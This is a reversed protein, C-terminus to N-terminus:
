FVRDWGVAVHKPAEQPFLLGTGAPRLTSVNPLLPKVAAAAVQRGKWPGEASAGPCPAAPAAQIPVLPAIHPGPGAPPWCPPLLLASRWCLWEPLAASGGASGLQSRQPLPPSHCGMPQSIALTAM